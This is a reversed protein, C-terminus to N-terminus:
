VEGDRTKIRTKGGSGGEGDNRYYARNFATVGGDEAGEAANILRRIKAEDIALGTRSTRILTVYRGTGSGKSATKIRFCEALLHVRRRSEKDMAQLAMTQVGLNAVFARLKPELAPLSSVAGSNNFRFAAKSKPGSGRKPAEQAAIQRQLARLRKNEAKKARDREWQAQLEVPVHKNKGRSAAPHPTLTPIACPHFLPERSM